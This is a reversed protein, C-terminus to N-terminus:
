LSGRQRELQFITCLLPQVNNYRESSLRSERKNKFTFPNVPSAPPRLPGTIATMCTLNTPLYEASIHVQGLVHVYMLLRKVAALGALSFEPPLFAVQSM